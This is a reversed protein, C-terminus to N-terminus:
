FVMLSLGWLVSYFALWQGTDVREGGSLVISASPIPALQTRSPSSLVTGPGPRQQVLLSGEGGGGGTVRAEYSSSAATVSETTNSFLPRNEAPPFMATQTPAAQPSLHCYSDFVALASATAEPESPVCKSSVARSIISEFKISSSACFCSYSTTRGGDGCGSVMNRVINSLPAEACPPLSSYLPVQNIFIRQATTATVVLLPLLLLRM